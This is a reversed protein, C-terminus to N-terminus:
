EKEQLWEFSRSILLEYKKELHTTQMAIRKWVFSYREALNRIEQADDYTLLVPGLQKAALYFLKDHDIENFKYLRRGSITYPPDLFLAVTYDDLHKEIVQFADGEIFEIRDRLSVIGEIRQVLTNPYWRSAIGKGNEGNKVFGSGQAMIGGRTARNWVITRLARFQTSTPTTGLIKRVNKIDFQFDLIQKELWIAQTKDLVTKWVSAIDPDLEVMIARAAYNEAVSTLSAIGSGAFPELFLNPKNHELWFRIIPILWTKGGPYRFLSRKPVQSVNTPKSLTM